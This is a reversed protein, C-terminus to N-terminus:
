RTASRSVRSISPPRSFSVILSGDLGIRKKAAEFHEDSVRGSAHADRCFAFVVAEDGDVEPQQNNRIADIITSDLGAKRALQEHIHWEHQCTWRRATVLM